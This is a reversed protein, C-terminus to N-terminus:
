TEERRSWQCYKKSKRQFINKHQIIVLGDYKCNIPAQEKLEQGQNMTDLTICSRRM